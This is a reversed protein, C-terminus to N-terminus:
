RCRPIITEGSFFPKLRLAGFYNVDFVKKYTDYVTDPESDFTCLCANHIAIDPNGLVSVASQIGESLSDEDAADAKFVFLRDRYHASLAAIQETRIDLVAARDGQELFQKVMYYGIGQDAGVILIDAM